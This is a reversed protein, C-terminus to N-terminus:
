GPVARPSFRIERVPGGLIQAAEGPTLLLSGSPLGPGAGALGPAPDPGPDPVASPVGHGPGSRAAGPTVPGSAVLGLLKGSRPSVRVRVSDGVSLQGFM